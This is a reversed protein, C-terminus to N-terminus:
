PIRFGSPQRGHRGLARIEDADAELLFGAELAADTALLFRECHEDPGGPYLRALQADSLPRTTGFLFMFAFGESGQGLGSLVCTPAEVWPTRIGGRAIGLEGQVLQSAGDGSTELRPACPPPTGDRVQRELHSLAAQLVYHQQPGANIPSKAPMGMPRDTPAMREALEPIGLTGDDSHAALLGYTDFHAAGAVEWLRFHDSDPQRARGGGLAVVDTESQLNLLPVRADDRIRHAGLLSPGVNAVNGDRPARLYIGDIGAAAGGRGHVLFADFCKALPDVANVYTVLFGASQSEGLAIVRQPALGLLPGSGDRLLRGVQTFIDYAFADGPHVLSAYRAADAQKLPMGPVLGGGDIGAKQVSVGVWASGERMLHRHLFLWDPAADIGGSVNMWEVVVTGSFRKPDAPRRVVIRTRFSASADEHVPWHGDDSREAGPEMAYSGAEGTVFWEAGVYGAAALDFSGLVSFPNGSIPGELKPVSM